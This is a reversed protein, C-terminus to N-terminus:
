RLAEALMLAGALVSVLALVLLFAVKGPSMPPREVPM